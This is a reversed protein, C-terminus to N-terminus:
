QLVDAEDPAIHGSHIFPQRQTPFQSNLPRTVGNVVVDIMHAQLFRVQCNKDCDLITRPWITTSHPISSSSPPSVHMAKFCASTSIHSPSDGFIANRLRLFLVGLSFGCFSSDVRNAFWHSFEYPDVSLDVLRVRLAQLNPAVLLNACLKFLQILTNGLM